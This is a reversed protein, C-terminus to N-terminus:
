IQLWFSTYRFGSVRSSIYRFSASMNSLYTGLLSVQYCAKFDFARCRVYQVYTSIFGQPQLGAAEVDSALPEAAQIIQAASIASALLRAWYL